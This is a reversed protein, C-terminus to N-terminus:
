GAMNVADAFQRLFDKAEEDVFTHSGNVFTVIAKDDDVVEVMCITAINVMRKGVQIWNM